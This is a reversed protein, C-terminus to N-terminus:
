KGLNLKIVALYKNLYMIHAYTYMYTCIHICMCVCKQFTINLWIVQFSRGGIFTACGSHLRNASFTKQDSRSQDSVKGCEFNGEKM